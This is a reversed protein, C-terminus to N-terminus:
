VVPMRRLRRGGWIVPAATLLLVLSSPEPVSSVDSATVNIQGVFGFAIPVDNGALDSLSSFPFGYVDVEISQTAATPIASFLVHGLGVTEGTGLTTAGVAAVDSAILSAGDNFTAIDPGFLSNGGFIYPALVTSTNAGTLFIDTFFFTSVEFEFAAIEVAPGSTNTLLVDFGASDGANVNISSQISLALVDARAPVSPLLAAAIGALLLAFFRFSRDQISGTPKM